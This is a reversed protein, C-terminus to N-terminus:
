RTRRVAPPFTREEQYTGNNSCVRVLGGQAGVARRLAGGHLATKKSDFVKVVKATSDNRLVWADRKEDYLLSFRKRAPM